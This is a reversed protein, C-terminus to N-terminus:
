SFPCGCRYEMTPPKSSTRMYTTVYTHIELMQSVEKAITTVGETLGTYRGPDTQLRTKVVDLPIVTLHTSTCGVAGCAAFLGFDAATLTREQTVTEFSIRLPPVPAGPSLALWVYPWAFWFARPFSLSSVDRRGVTRSRAAAGEGWLAPRIRNTESLKLAM